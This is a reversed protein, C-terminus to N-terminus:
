KHKWYMRDVTKGENNMLYMTRKQEGNVAITLNDDLVFIIEDKNSIKRYTKCEYMSEIKKEESDSEIRLFM